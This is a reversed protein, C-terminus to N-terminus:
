KKAGLFTGCSPCVMDDPSIQASCAPCKDVAELLELAKKYERERKFWEVVRFFTIITCVIINYVIVTKIASLENPHTILFIAVTISTIIAYFTLVYPIVYAFIGKEHYPKWKAIINENRDM